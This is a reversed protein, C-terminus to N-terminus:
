SAPMPKSLTSARSSPSSSAVLCSRAKLDDDDQDEVPYQVFYRRRHPSMPASSITAQVALDRGRGDRVPAPAAVREGAARTRTHYTPAQEGHGAVVAIEFRGERQGEGSSSSSPGSRTRSRESRVMTSTTSNEPRLLQDVAVPQPWDQGQDRV